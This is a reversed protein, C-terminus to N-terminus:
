RNRPHLPYQIPLSPIEMTWAVALSELKIMVYGMQTKTLAKSSFYVTKGHQILCARLGKISADKQLVTEKNPDYYALVPAKVIEKKIM